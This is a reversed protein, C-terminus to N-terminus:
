EHRMVARGVVTRNKLWFPPLLAVNDYPVSAQVLFCDGRKCTSVEKLALNDYDATSANVNATDFISADRVSVTVQGTNLASGVIQQVKATVQASTVEEYCGVQAGFRAASNLTHVILFYHGFEMLGALLIGLVPLTLATEVTYAGERRPRPRHLSRVQMNRVSEKLVARM